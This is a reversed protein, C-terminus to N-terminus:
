ITKHPFNRHHKTMKITNVVSKGSGCTNNHYFLL